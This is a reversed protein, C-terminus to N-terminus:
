PHMFRCVLQGRFLSRHNLGKFRPGLATWSNEIKICIRAVVRHKAMGEFNIAVGQQAHFIRSISKMNKDGLTNSNQDGRCRGALVVDPEKADHPVEPGFDGSCSYGHLWM